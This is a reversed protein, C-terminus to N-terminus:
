RACAPSPATNMNASVAMGAAQPSKTPWRIRLGPLGDVLQCCTPSTLPSPALAATLVDRHVEVYHAAAKWHEGHGDAFMSAWPEKGALNSSYLLEYMTETRRSLADPLRERMRGDAGYGDVFAALGRAAKEPELSVDSLRFTQAEYALDWLRTSPAAADWDIFVWREGTILNWPGLDNHASLTRVLRPSYVDSCIAM